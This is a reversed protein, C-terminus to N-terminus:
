TLFLNRSTKFEYIQGFIEILYEFLLKENSQHPTIAECIFTFTM